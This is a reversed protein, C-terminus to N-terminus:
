PRVQFNQINCTLHKPMRHPQALNVLIRMKRTTLRSQAETYKICYFNSVIFVWLENGFFFPFFSIRFQGFTKSPSVPPKLTSM